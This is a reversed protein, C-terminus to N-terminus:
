QKYIYIRRYSSRCNITSYNNFSKDILTSLGESSIKNGKIDLAVNLYSSDLYKIIREEEIHINDDDKLEIIEIKHYKKIRGLYDNIADELYKEKIKGFCIIRIM